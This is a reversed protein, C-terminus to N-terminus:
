VVGRRRLERVIREAAAEPSEAITDITIDAHEPREYPSDIGTFNKIEGRRAKKYLGKPDRREAEPLSVDVFVEVFEGAPFLGRAMRRESRFPSIFAAIVILGADAMLASVEAARRINEVRAADTFGLDKNLGHRLNDGDLLYTHAGLSHLKKEVLNAITSKGAGSLGTFWLACAKQKKLAARAAKDVAIAQWHVNQSRRLAFHILAVGVTRNTIRDILMFVGLQRNSRFPEFGVPEELEVECVGVENLELERAPVHELTDVNIKYKLPALTGFVSRTAHQVTYSRGPLMPAEDLWVITVEFQDAVQAPSEAACLLDGPSADVDDDVQVAELWELISPGAYWPMRGKPEIVNDGEVASVPVCTLDALPLAAAFDRYASEIARFTDQSYGALDMKNVALLVHRIGMLSVLYGHRRAQALSGRTADLLIIAAGANSAHAIIERTFREDGPTDAVIFKRRDTAFAHPEEHGPQADHLLREVLTSKGDGASGCTVFRLLAKDDHRLRKEAGPDPHPM